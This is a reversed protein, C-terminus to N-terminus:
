PREMWAAKSVGFVRESFGTGRWAWDELGAIAAVLGMATALMKFPRMVRQPKRSIRRWLGALPFTLDSLPPKAGVYSRFFVRPTRFVLWGTKIFSLLAILPQTIKSRLESSVSEEDLSLPSAC